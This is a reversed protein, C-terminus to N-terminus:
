KELRGLYAHHASHAGFEVLGSTHMERIMALTLVNEDSLAPFDVGYRDSLEACGQRIKKPPATVFHSAIFL